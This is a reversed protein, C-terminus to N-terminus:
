GLPALPCRVGLFIKSGYFINSFLYSNGLRLSRAEQSIDRGRSAIEGGEVGHRASPRTLEM